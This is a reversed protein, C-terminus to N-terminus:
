YLNTPLYHEHPTDPEPKEVGDVNRLWYTQNFSASNEPIDDMVWEHGKPFYIGTRPHPVWDEMKSDKISNRSKEPRPVAPPSSFHCQLVPRTERCSIDYRLMLMKTKSIAARAM